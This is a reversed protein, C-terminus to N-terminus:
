EDPPQYFLVEGTREDSVRVEGTVRSKLRGDEVYESLGKHFYFHEREDRPLGLVFKRAEDLTECKM